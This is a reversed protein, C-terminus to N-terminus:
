FHYSLGILYHQNLFKLSYPFSYSYYFFRYTIGFAIKESIKYEWGLTNLMNFHENLSVVLWRGNNSDFRPNYSDPRTVYNLLGMSVTLSLVHRNKRYVPNIIVQLSGANIDYATVNDEYPYKKSKSKRDRYSGFGKVGAGAYLSFSSADPQYVEYLGEYALEGSISSVENYSFLESGAVPYLTTKMYHFYLRHSWKNEIFKVCLQLPQIATHGYVVPNDWEDLVKSRFIGLSYGVELYTTKQATTQYECCAYLLYATIICFKLASLM